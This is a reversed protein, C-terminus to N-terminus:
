IALKQDKSKFYISKLVCGKPQQNHALTLSKIIKEEWYLSSFGFWSFLFHKQLHWEAKFYWRSCFKEQWQLLPLFVNQTRVRRSGANPSLRWPQTATQHHRPLRWSGYKGARVLLFKATRAKLVCPTCHDVYDDFLM